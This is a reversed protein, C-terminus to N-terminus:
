SFNILPLGHYDSLARIKCYCLAGRCLESIESIGQQYDMLLAYNDILENLDLLQDGNADAHSLLQNFEAEAPDYESPILWKM